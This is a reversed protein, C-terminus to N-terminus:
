ERAKTLDNILGPANAKQALLTAMLLEIRKKQEKKELDIKNKLTMLQLLHLKQMKPKSSMVSMLTEANTLDHVIYKLLDRESMPINGDVMKKRSEISMQFSNNALNLSAMYRNYEAFYGQKSSMKKEEVTPAIVGPEYILVESFDIAAAEQVETYTNEVPFMEDEVMNRSEELINGDYDVRAAFGEPNLLNGAKQNLNSTKLVENESVSCVGSDVNDEECLKMDPNTCLDYYIESATCYSSNHKSMTEVALETSSSTKSAVENTKQLVRKSVSAAKKEFHSPSVIGSMMKNRKCVGKMQNFQPSGASMIGDKGGYFFGSNKDNFEAEALNRMHELKNESMEKERDVRDKQRTQSSNFISKNLESTQSYLVEVIKDTAEKSVATLETQLTVVEERIKELEDDAGGSFSHIDVTAWCTKFSYPTKYDIPDSSGTVYIPSVPIKVAPPLPGAPPPCGAVVLKSFVSLLLALVYKNKSVKIISM